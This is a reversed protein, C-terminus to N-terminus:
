AIPYTTSIRKYIKVPNEREIKIDYVKYVGMFYYTGSAKKAFVLRTTQDQRLEHQHKKSEPLWEEYLMDKQFTNKWLGNTDDDSIFNSHAVFWPSYGEPTAAKAYLLRRPAFLSSVSTDWDFKKSFRNYADQASKGCDENFNLSSITTSM